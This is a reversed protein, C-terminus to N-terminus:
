DLNSIVQATFERTGLQGGLDRTRTEPKALAAFMAKRINEAKDSMGLYELMLIASSLLATPNAFNKGAIDPASGHVAEFVAKNEGINAGAAVGLGGILGAGLDSLIDGYLNETVIVDFQGPKTVMQMCCNDIIMDSFDVKPHAEAVAKVCGLFLGDTHKMINAKHVATVKKRGLREALEFAHEGIKTSGQKTILKIGHAVDDGVKYEIGRYLDETNERVIVFDVNKFPTEIGPITKIPRVCAYLDFTQRILVNISRHGGGVPTTTPGKLAIGTQNLSDIFKDPLLQGSRQYEDIGIAVEDWSVQVKAASFIAVVSETIEPGIGDGPALTIKKM